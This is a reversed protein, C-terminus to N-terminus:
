GLALVKGKMPYSICDTINLSLISAALSSTL